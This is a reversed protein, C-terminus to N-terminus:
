YRYNYKRVNTEVDSDCYYVGCSIMDPEQIHLQFTTSDLTTVSCQPLNDTTYGNEIVPTAPLSKSTTMGVIFRGNKASKICM